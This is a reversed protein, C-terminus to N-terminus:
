SFSWWASWFYWPNGPTCAVWFGNTYQHFKSPEKHFVSVLMWSKRRARCEFFMRPARPSMNPASYPGWPEPVYLTPAESVSSERTGVPLFNFNTSSSQFFLITPGWFMLFHYLHSYSDVIGSRTHVGFYYFYFASFYVSIWLLMLWLQWHYFVFWTNVSLIFLCIFSAIFM